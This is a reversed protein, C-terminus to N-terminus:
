RNEIFINDSKPLDEDSVSELKVELAQELMPKAGEKDIGVYFASIKEKSDYLSVNCFYRENLIFSGCVEAGKVVIGKTEPIDQVRKRLDEWNGDKIKYTEWDTLM